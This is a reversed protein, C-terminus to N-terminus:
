TLLERVQASTAGQALYTEVTVRDVDRRVALASADLTAMGADEFCRWRWAIIAGDRESDYLLAADGRIAYEDGEGLTLNPQRHVYAM